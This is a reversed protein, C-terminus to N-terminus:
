YLCIFSKLFSKLKHFNRILIEREYKYDIFDSEKFMNHLITDIINESKFKSRSLLSKNLKELKKSYEKYLLDFVSVIQSEVIEADLENYKIYKLLAKIDNGEENFLKKDTVIAFQEIARSVAVNVMCPDDVFDIGRKGMRSSDIVTSLIMLKKERGQFKHITDSQIDENTAVQLNNAQMRYPSMVGIEDDSYSNVNNNKLVEEIIVERERDNFTGKGEGKTIKRMHNGESTYYLILPKKVKLHDKTSFAILQNGYYRKNCFEIIKPHCRYHERLIIQPMKEGYTRVIASLMSNEFYDHCIDVDESAVKPKIAKDVIQPLQKEDGVIVANKACALAISGALLDVQSSEDIIVYDFM